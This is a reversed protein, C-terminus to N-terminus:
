RKRRGLEITLVACLHRKKRKTEEHTRKGGIERSWYDLLGSIYDTSLGRIREWRAESTSEFLFSYIDESREMDRTRSKIESIIDDLMEIKEGSTEEKKMRLIEEIVEEGKTLKHFSWRRKVNM